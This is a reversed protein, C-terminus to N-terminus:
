ITYWIRLGVQVDNFQLNALDAVGEDWQFNYTDNGDVTAAVNIDGIYVDGGERTTAAVGFMDDVFNIADIWASPSDDRVQIDQAGSLNNAAANTNEIIRYKFMAVARIVRANPPLGAVVVDPLSKDGAVATLQVEEQPDSWFDISTLTYNYTVTGTATITGATQMYGKITITATANTAGVNGILIADGNVNLEGSAGSVTTTGAVHLNGNVTIHGTTSSLDGSVRANGNIILTGTGNAVDDDAWLNDLHITGTSTNNIDSCYLDGNAIFLDASSGFNITGIYCDGYAIFSDAGDMTLIGNMHCGNYIYILGGGTNNFSFSVLGNYFYFTGGNNSTIANRIYAQNSVTFAGSSGNTLTGYIDLTGTVVFDVAGNLTVAGVALNNFAVNGGGTNNFAGTIESNGKITITGTNSNTLAGVCEFNGNVALAGSNSITVNRDVRLNGNITVNGAVGTSLLDLRVYTDGYVSIDGTTTSLTDDCHLGGGVIVDGTTTTLSGYLKVDSQLVLAATTNTIYRALVPGSVYISGGGTNNLWGDADAASGTIQLDGEIEITGTNNSTITGVCHCYGHVEMSGSSGFAIYGVDLNGSDWNDAGDLTLTGAILTNGTVMCNGGGTNNWNTGINVNGDVTIAGGGNSIIGTAIETNGGFFALGSSGHAVAYIFTDGYITLTASSGTTLTGTVRLGDDVTLSAGAANITLNGEVILKGNIAIAGTSTSNIGEVSLNGNITFTSGATTMTLTGGIFSDGLIVIDDGGTNNFAGACYLGGRITIDGGASNTISTDVTCKGNVTVSGTSNNVITSCNLDKYFLANLTSTNTLGLEITLSDFILINAGCAATFTLIGMHGGYCYFGATTGITATGTIEARGRIGVWQGTANFAGDITIDDMAGLIAGSWTLDDGLSAKGWWIITGTSTVTGHSYFDRYVGFTENTLTVVGIFSASGSIQFVELGTAGVHTVTGNVLTDGYIYIDAGGATFNNGCEFDKYITLDGTTTTINRIAVCRGYVILAGTTTTVDQTAILDGFFNIVSTTNTFTFCELDSLINVTLGAAVTVTCYSSGEIAMTFDTTIDFTGGGIIKVKHINRLLAITMCDAYNNVPMEATGIPWDTGPVGNAQDYYVSELTAQVAPLYLINYYIRFNRIYTLAGASAMAYLQILDSTVLGFIDQTYTAYTGTIDTWVTYNPTAAPNTVVPVGNKYIVGSATGGAPDIRMDFKVRCGGVKGTWALSKVQTLVAAATTVETDDSQKLDNSPWDIILTNEGYFPHMVVIEDGVAIPATDYPADINFLGTGSVYSSCAEKDGQPAVGGGSYDRAVYVDWDQFFNDGYGKIDTEFSTTSIVRTVKGKIFDSLQPLSLGYSEAM